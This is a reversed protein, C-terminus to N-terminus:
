LLRRRFLVSGVFLLLMAGLVSGLMGVPQIGHFRAVGTHVFSSLWGGALSGGVGLLTTMVLGMSRSGPMIVRAILGVVFGFVIWGIIEM